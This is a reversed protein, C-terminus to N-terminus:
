LFILSMLDELKEFPDSIKLERNKKVDEDEARDHSV